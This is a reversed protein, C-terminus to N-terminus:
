EVEDMQAGCNPCYNAEGEYEYIVEDFERTVKMLFKPTGCNSCVCPLDNYGDEIWTAHIVPAVDEPPTDDIYRKINQYSASELFDDGWNASEIIRILKDADIYRGM